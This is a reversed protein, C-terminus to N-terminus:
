PKGRLRGAHTHETRHLRKSEYAEIDELRYRASGGIKIFAPGRRLWRWRELTRRSITWRAALERPTLHRDPSGRRRPGENPFQCDTADAPM